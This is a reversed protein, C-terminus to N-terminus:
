RRRAPSERLIRTAPLQRHDDVPQCRDAWRPCWRGSCANARPVRYSFVTFFGYLAMGSSVMDLDLQLKARTARIPVGHGFAMAPTTTLMTTASAITAGARASTVSSRMVLCGEIM